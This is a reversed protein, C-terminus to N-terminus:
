GVAKCGVFRAFTNEASVAIPAGMELSIQVLLRAHFEFDQFLVILDVHELSTYLLLKAMKCHMAETSSINTSIHKM